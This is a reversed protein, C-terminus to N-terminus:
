KPSQSSLSEQCHSDLGTAKAVNPAAVRTSIKPYKMGNISLRNSVIAMGNAVIAPVNIITEVMVSKSGTIVQTNAMMAPPPVAAAMLVVIPAALAVDDTPVAPMPFGTIDVASVPIEREMDIRAIKRGTM